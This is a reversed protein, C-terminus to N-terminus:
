HEHLEEVTQWRGDRWSMDGKREPKNDSLDVPIAKISDVGSDGADLLIIYIRRKTLAQASGKPKKGRLRDYIELLAVILGALLAMDTLAERGDILLQSVIDLGWGKQEGTSETVAFGASELAMRIDKREANSWEGSFYTVDVAM